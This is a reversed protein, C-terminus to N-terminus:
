EDDSTESDAITAATRETPRTVNREAMFEREGAILNELRTALLGARDGNRLRTICNAPFGHTPLLTGLVEDDLAALAGIAQGVHGGDAFMRNAPNSVLDKPDPNSWVYGVADTGLRSLLAGPDLEGGGHLSRPRLSALYLLFARVRASRADFRDPFPQAPADLAVVQFEESAGRALGRIEELARKAQATNVGGFWGTFSTVWFWRKLIEVTEPAPRPCIRHFEGLLVLQLGYPLLRDSTVGFRELLDLARRIGQAADDFAEPLKERVEPKVMLDAWDKAYIDRDLAALVSRLLFVRDLNGFGKKRLESKFENLMGSLHFQGEQYTLASVMEDAAMKRGTRNLRAFVTVASELDAERIHILPLQYDRFASALRDAEDLWAQAQRRDDVNQQIRRCADFFGATNLLSRVPFYRPEPPKAQESPRAQQRLHVFERSDLDYHIRWDIQEVIPDNVSDPLRLTGVLTSVRQQGDLLYGTQGKPRPSIEVPGIRSTSEINEETDWVLISGIPFGRLVSDLLASLDPQKWVFARQFRPVRIKGDAVREVLKGLFVVEPVVETRKQNSSPM